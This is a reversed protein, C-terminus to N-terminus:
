KNLLFAFICFVQLIIYSGLAYYTNFIFHPYLYQSSFIFKLFNISIASEDM